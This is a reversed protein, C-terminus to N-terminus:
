PPVYGDMGMSINSHLLMGVSRAEGTKHWHAAHLTAVREVCKRVNDNTFTDVTKGPIINSVMEM